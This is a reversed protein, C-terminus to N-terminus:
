TVGDAAVMGNTDAVLRIICGSSSLEKSSILARNFFYWFALGDGPGGPRGLPICFLWIPLGGCCGLICGGGIIGGEILIGDILPIGGPGGPNGGTGGGPNGGIRGGPITGGLPMGGFPNLPPGGWGNIDCGMFM